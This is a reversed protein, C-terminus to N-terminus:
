SDVVSRDTVRGTADIEFITPPVGAIRKVREV